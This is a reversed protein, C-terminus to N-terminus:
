RLAEPNAPVAIPAVGGAAKKTGRRELLVAVRSIVLNMALYMLAAVFFMSFLYRNGFFVQLTQVSRLLEFYGVIYGLSTDKNLVVLQAVLTPLMRRIAQPLLILRLSQAPTLGLASAAEAQGRPLSAIGARLIEAVIASNYIVLGIVVAWFISVPLVVAAFFMLLVVPLGRFLEIVVAAPRSIVARRSTRLVCLAVGVFAALVAAAASAQLTAVMARGFAEWLEPDQFVDWRRADFLERSDLRRYVLYALLLLILAAIGTGIRARRRARPGPADYLVSAESM